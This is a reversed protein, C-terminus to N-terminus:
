LTTKGHDVHGMVTVIPARPKLLKPDDPEEDELSDEDKPKVKTPEIDYELCITDVLDDDLTSNITAMKGQMFLVKILESPTRGCKKALEGLTIGDSYEIAHIDPAAKKAAAPNNFPRQDQRQPGRNKNQSRNKNNNSNSNNRKAPAKKGPM